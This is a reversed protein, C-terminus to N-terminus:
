VEENPKEKLIKNGGNLGCSCDVCHLALTPVIYPPM